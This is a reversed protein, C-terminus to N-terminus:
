YPAKTKGKAAPAAPAPAPAAREAKAAAAQADVKEIVSKVAGGYNEAAKVKDRLWQPISAAAEETPADFSFLAPEDHLPNIPFGDPAPMVGSINAVKKPGDKGVIDAHVITVLCPLNLYKSLDGKLSDNPDVNKMFQFLASKPDNSLTFARTSMRMPVEEGDYEMKEAIEFTFMVQRVPDRDAGQYPKRSQVGLDVVQLIRAGQTTAKPLPRDFKSKTAAIESVIFTM